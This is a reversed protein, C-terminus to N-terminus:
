PNNWGRRAMEGKAGEICARQHAAVQEPTRPGLIAGYEPGIGLAEASHRSYAIFDITRRDTTTLLLERATVQDHEAHALAAFVLLMSGAELRVRGSASRQALPRMLDEATELEGLAIHCLASYFDMTGFASRIITTREVVALAAEPQGLILHSVAANRAYQATAENEISGDWADLASEALGLAVEIDNDFLSVLGVVVQHFSEGQSRDRGPELAALDASAGDLIHKATGPDTAVRGFAAIANGLVRPLPQPSGTLAAVSAFMQDYDNAVIAVGLRSAHLQLVLPDDPQDLAAIVRDILRLAGQDDDLLVRLAGSLLEGAIRWQGRSAGWEFAAIINSRDHRFIDLAAFDWWLSDVERQANLGHYHELHRDRAAESEGAAALNQQAYAATTEFLRFRSAGDIVVRDVLSKAVLSEILDAAEHRAAGTVSATADLDFTGV